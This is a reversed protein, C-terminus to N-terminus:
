HSGSERIEYHESHDDWRSLVERARAPVHAVSPDEGVFQKVAEMSDFTMITIFKLEEDHVRRLLEIGHYGSM